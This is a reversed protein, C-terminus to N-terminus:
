GHNRQGVTIFFILVLKCIIKCISTKNTWIKKEAMQKEVEEFRFGWGERRDHELMQNM